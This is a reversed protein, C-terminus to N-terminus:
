AGDMDAIAQMAQVVVQLNLGCNPCYCVTVSRATPKAAASRRQSLGHVRIHPWFGQGKLKKSCIPCSIKGDVLPTSKKYEKLEQITM